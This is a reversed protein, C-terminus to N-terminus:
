VGAATVVADTLVGLVLGAVLGYAVLEAVTGVLTPEGGIARALLFPPRVPV